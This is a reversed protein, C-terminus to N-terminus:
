KGRSDQGSLSSGCRGLAACFFGALYRRIQVASFAAFGDFDNHLETPLHAALEIRQEAAIIHVNLRGKLVKVRLRNLHRCTNNILYGGKILHRVYREVS